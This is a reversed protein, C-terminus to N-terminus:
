TVSSGTGPGAVRIQVPAAADVAGALVAVGARAEPVLDLRRQTRSSASKRPRYSRGWQKSSVLSPESPCTTTSSHRSQPIIHHFTAASLNLEIKKVALCSAEKQRTIGSAALSVHM